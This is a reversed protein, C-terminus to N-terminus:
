AAQNALHRANLVGLDFEFESRVDLHARELGRQRADAGRGGGVVRRFLRMSSKGRQFIQPMTTTSTAPTRSASGFKMGDDTSACSGFPKGLCCTLRPSSRRPPLWM